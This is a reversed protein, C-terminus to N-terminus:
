ITRILFLLRSSVSREQETLKGTPDRSIVSEVENRFNRVHVSIVNQGLVSVADFFQIVKKVERRVRALADTCQVLGDLDPNPGPNPGPSPVPPRPTSEVPPVPLGSRKQLIETLEM